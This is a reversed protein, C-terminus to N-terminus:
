KPVEQNTTCCIFLEPIVGFGVRKSLRLTVQDSATIEIALTSTMMVGPSHAAVWAVPLKSSIYLGGVAHRAKELLDGAQDTANKLESPKAVTIHQVNSLVSLASFFAEDVGREFICVAESLKEMIPLLQRIDPLPFHFTQEQLGAWRFFGPTKNEELKALIYPVELDGAPIVQLYTKVFNTARISRLAPLM